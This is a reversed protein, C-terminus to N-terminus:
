GPVRPQARPDQGPVRRTPAERGQYPLGSAGACERHGRASARLADREGGAAEGAHSRDSQTAHGQSVPGGAGSRRDRTRRLRPDGGQRGRRPDDGPARGSAHVNQAGQRVAAARLRFARVDAGERAVAGAAGVAAPVGELDGERRYGSSRLIRWAGAPRFFSNMLGRRRRSSVVPRWGQHVGCGGHDATGASSKSAESRTASDRPTGTPETSAVSARTTARTAARREIVRGRSSSAASTEASRWRSATRRWRAGRRRRRGRRRYM